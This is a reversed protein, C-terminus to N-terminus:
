RPRERAFKAGPLPNGALDTITETCLIGDFGTKPECTLTKSAEHHVTKTLVDAFPIGLAPQEPYFGRASIREVGAVGPSLDCKINNGFVTEVIDFGGVLPDVNPDYMAWAEGHEDTYLTVGSIGASGKYIQGLPNRCTNDPNEYSEPLLVDWYDYVREENVFGPFNNGEAAAVGSTGSKNAAPIYARYFPAYLNHADDDGTGDLSYIESKDAKILQGITGTTDLDVRLAPM